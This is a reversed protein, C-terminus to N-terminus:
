QSVEEIAKDSLLASAALPIVAGGIDQALGLAAGIMEERGNGQPFAPFAGCLPINTRLQVRETCAQVYSAWVEVPQIQATRTCGSFILLLFSFVLCKM